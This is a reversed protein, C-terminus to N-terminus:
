GPGAPEILELNGASPEFGALAQRLVAHIAAVDNADMATRLAELVGALEARALGPEASRLIRPHETRNVGEGVLLEEHLKEGPRLGTYDIAIDGDPHAADRVELGMLRIMSRALDDLKVPEGMDLAFVEGGTAMAGAQIV